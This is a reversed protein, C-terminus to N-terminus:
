FCSARPACGLPYLSTLLYVCRTPDASVAPTGARGKQEKGRATDGSSPGRAAASQFRPTAASGSAVVSLSSGAFVRRTVSEAPVVKEADGVTEDPDTEWTPSRAWGESDRLRPQVWVRSARKRRRPLPPFGCTGPAPPPPRRPPASLRPSFARLESAPRPAPIRTLFEIQPKEVLFLIAFLLTMPRRPTPSM